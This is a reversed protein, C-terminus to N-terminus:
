NSNLFTLSEDLLPPKEIDETVTVPESDDSGASSSNTSSSYSSGREPNNENISEIIMRSSKHIENGFKQEYTKTAFLLGGSMMDSMRSMTEDINKETLLAKEHGLDQAFV